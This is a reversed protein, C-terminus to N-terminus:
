KSASQVTPSPLVALVKYTESLRKKGDLSVVWDVKAKDGHFEAEVEEVLPVRCSRRNGQPGAFREAFKSECNVVALRGDPLQLTLTAGRVHFPVEHAPTAYGNTSTSGSCTSSYCNVQTNSQSSFHSSVVYSYDSESDQHGIITVNFKQAAATGVFVLFLGAIVLKLQRGGPRSMARIIM